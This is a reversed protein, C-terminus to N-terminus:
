RRDGAGRRELKEYVALDRIFQVIQPADSRAADRIILAM